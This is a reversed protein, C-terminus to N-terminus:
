AARAACPVRPGPRTLGADSWRPVLHVAVLVVRCCRRRRGHRGCSGDHVWQHRQDLRLRAHGISQQGIVGVVAGPATTAARRAPLGAAVLPRARDVPGGGLGVRRRGGVMGWRGRSGGGRSRRASPCRSSCPTPRRALRAPVGAGHAGALAARSPGCVRAVRGSGSPVVRGSLVAARAAIGGSMGARAPVVRRGWAAPVRRASQTLRGPERRWVWRGRRRRRDDRVRWRGTLGRSVTM